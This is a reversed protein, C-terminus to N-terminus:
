GLRDLDYQTLTRDLLELDAGRRIYDAFYEPYRATMEQQTAEATGNGIFGLAEHRLSDLLLRAAVYTYNPEREIQTRASMILTVAVDQEPVGDFLNRKTEELIRNGDVDDLGACAERIIRQLREIDLPQISGDKLTVNHAAQKEEVRQKAKEARLRAHEERYLVYSRAIKQHGNRMLALEVQDQIDEIHVTGGSPLRRTLAKVIQDTLEAVNDHIRRSAAASGGEVALFAKTIAVAIKNADFSTVKGNRRIVRVEGPVVSRIEADPVPAAAVARPNNETAVSETEM